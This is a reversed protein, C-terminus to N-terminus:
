RALGASAGRVLLWILLVIAGALITFAYNRVYGTQMRRLSNGVWGTFGAIGNVLGDIIRVDIFQWMWNAIKGGLWLGIGKVMLWDYYYQNYLVKRVGALERENEPLGARYRAWGFWIGLVAAAVSAVVLIWEIDVPLHGVAEGGLVKLGASPELFAEFRNPIHLPAFGGIFGGVVSLVALIMLPVTMSPPSEQPEGHHGHSEDKGHHAHATAWRPEGWFTLGMLRTMYFATLLATLLGVAWLIQGVSVPLAHTGFASALIEDKSFFGALPPIGSIALWGVLMTWYTIPLYKALGGMRRMDQEHHLALIVSGSGLFLLAKFFAHTTVHFMGSAFAGVGCGLFMYGLQSVTSYALVRKIDVQALAITAAFIATFVGIIAVVLMAAPALEFFVHCRTVMVVGATVMTAAHILASVPTPGAMADPLWMYLPFQASKGTAGVFLLLAIATIVTPSLMNAAKLDIARQFMNGDGAFSLTGFTWFALIVALTFGWDGIRNVIFAKNASDTNVKDKYWFGILLYSCLGVGEWGVFMMLLNNSLVLTLMFVIFLNMYTFFRSYDEDDAMYGTSYLHILGGVGTVILAMLLSLPDVLAEFSVRFSGAEIWRWLTSLVQQEEAHLKLLELLLYVSLAFAGLVVATGVTGVVKKGVRKGLFAHFLFGALPLAIVIWVLDFVNNAM